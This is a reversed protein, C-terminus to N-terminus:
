KSTTAVIGNEVAWAKLEEPSKDFSLALGGYNVYVHVGTKNSVQVGYEVDEPQPAKAPVVRIGPMTTSAACCPGIFIQKEKDVLMQHPVFGATGCKECSAM